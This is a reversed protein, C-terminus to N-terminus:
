LNCLEIQALLLLVASGADRWLLQLLQFLCELVAQAHSAM